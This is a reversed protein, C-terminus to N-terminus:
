PAYIIDGSKTLVTVGGNQLSTQIEQNAIDQLAQVILPSETQVYSPYTPGADVGDTVQGTTVSPWGLGATIGTLISVDIITSYLVNVQATYTNVVYNTGGLPSTVKTYTPATIGLLDRWIIARLPMMLTRWDTETARGSTTQLLMPPQTHWGPSQAIYNLPVNTATSLIDMTVFYYNFVDGGGTFTIFWAKCSPAPSPTASGATWTYISFTTWNVFKSVMAAWTEGITKYIGVFNTTAM